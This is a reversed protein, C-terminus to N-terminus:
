ININFSILGFFLKININKNTQIETKEKIKRGSNERYGGHNSKRNDIKTKITQIKRPPNLEGLMQISKFAMQKTPEITTWEWESYKGKLNCKIIGGKQLVRPLNKSLQKKGCFDNLSIRNTYSLINRLEILANYYKDISTQSVGSM